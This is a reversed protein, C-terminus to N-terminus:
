AWPWREVWQAALYFLCYLWLLGLAAGAIHWVLAWRRPATGGPEQGRRLCPLCVMAGRDETVCERCYARQCRACLAAAEREAHFHCRALRLNM